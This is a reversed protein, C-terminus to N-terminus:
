MRMANASTTLFREILPLVAQYRHPVAHPGLGTLLTVDKTTDRAHAFKTLLKRTEKSLLVDAHQLILHAALQCEDLTGVCELPKDATPDLLEVLYTQLGPTNIVSKSGWITKAIAPSAATIALAVFACKACALCWTADQTGHNCSTIARLQKESLHPLILSIQLENMPRLLSFYHIPIGARSFLQQLDQEFEFSKSYQHNITVGDKELNGENASSENSAIVDTYGFMYASLTALFAIGASMPRHGQYARNLRKEDLKRQVCFIPKNWAATVNAQAASNGRQFWTFDIGAENLLYSSVSGDKGGGNLLLPRLIRQSQVSTHEDQMARQQTSGTLSVRRTIDINNTLRFEGFGHFFLKEFFTVDDPSIPFDCVVQEFYEISFLGFSSAIAVWRLLQIGTSTNTSQPERPFTYTHEFQEAGVTYTCSLISGKFLPEHIRLIM